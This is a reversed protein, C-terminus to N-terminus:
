PVQHGGMWRVKEEGETFKIGHGKLMEPGVCTRITLLLLSARTPISGPTQYSHDLRLSSFLLPGPGGVQPMPHHCIPGFSM